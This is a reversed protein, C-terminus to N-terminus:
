GWDHVDGDNNSLSISPVVVDGVATTDAAEEGTVATAASACASALLFAALLAHSRSYRIGHLRERRSVAKAHLLLSFRSRMAM